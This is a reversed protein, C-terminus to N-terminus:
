AVKNEFKLLMFNFDKCELNDMFFVKLNDSHEKRGWLIKCNQLLKCANLSM